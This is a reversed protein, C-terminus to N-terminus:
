RSAPRDHARYLAVVRGQRVQWATFLWVAQACARYVSKTGGQARFAVETTGDLFARVQALTQLKAEEMDIVMGQMM